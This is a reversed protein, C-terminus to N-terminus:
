PAAHGPRPRRPQPHPDPQPAAPGSRAPSSGSLQSDLGEETRKGVRVQHCHFGQHKSCPPRMPTIRLGAEWEAPAWGADPCRPAPVRTLRDGRSVGTDEQLLETDVAAPLGQALAGAAVLDVVARGEALALYAGGAHGRRQGQAGASGRPLWAPRPWPWAPRQEGVAKVKDRDTSGLGPRRTM